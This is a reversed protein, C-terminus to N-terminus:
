DMRSLTTSSMRRASFTFCAPNGERTAKPSPCPATRQATPAAAHHPVQRLVEKGMQAVVEAKCQQGQEAHQPQM